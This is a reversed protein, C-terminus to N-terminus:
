GTARVTSSGEAIPHLGKSSGYLVNVKDGVRAVRPGGEGSLHVDDSEVVVKPSKVLADGERAVITTEGFKIVAEEPKDSPPENDDDYTSWVAMSGAGVTGSGNQLNMQENDAPVSHIKLRGAGPEQWRVPPSLIPAGAEDQGIELRVTRAEMDQSGPHVKGPLNQRAIRGSLQNVQRRLTRLEVAALSRM